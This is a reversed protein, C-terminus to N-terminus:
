NNQGIFQLYPNADRSVYWKQLPGLNTEWWGYECVVGMEEM